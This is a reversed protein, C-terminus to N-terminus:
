EEYGDLTFDKKVSPKENENSLNNKDLSENNEKENTDVKNEENINQEYDDFM